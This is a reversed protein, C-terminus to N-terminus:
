EDLVPLAAWKGARKEYKRPGGYIYHDHNISGDPKGEWEPDCPTPELMPNQTWADEPVKMRDDIIQRLFAAMPEGRRGAENQLFEHEQRTLYIQTRVMNRAEDIMACDELVLPEQPNIKYKTAKRMGRDYM